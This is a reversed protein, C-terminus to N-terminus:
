IMPTIPNMPNWFPLVIADKELNARQTDTLFEKRVVVEFLYDTMWKDDMVCFGKDGITDGWSNEVKWKTPKDDVINVGAIVMAHTPLSERYNFREGKTMNFDLDFLDKFKYLSDSMIGKQRDFHKLVDCAFWVPEGSKLQKITLKKLEDMEVNLYRNPKGDVMNGSLEVEFTQDFPMSETPVNIIIAYDNLDIDVYKQYMEVPTLNQYSTYKKDKDRFTFNITEPPTGLAISLIRYVEVLQEDIFSKIEDNTKNSNMMRRLVIADARLKRNLLTNLETSDMSCSSEDMEYKPVVGYKEVLSIILNWDGGDQQPSNLLFQVDRSSLEEGSTDLINQYFYNAKELKDYFFLYNQSLEFNEINYQKEIQFRIVNLCSFMWCRGSHRQNTVQHTDVDISFNFNNDDISRINEAAKFLGNTTAATQAVQNGRNSNFDKKMENIRESTLPRSM